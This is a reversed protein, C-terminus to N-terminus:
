EDALVDQRQLRTRLALGARLHAAEVDSFRSETFDGARLEAASWGAQMLGTPEHTVTGLLLHGLEHSVVLGLLDDFHVKAQRALRAIQGVYVTAMVGTKLVPDVNASGLALPALGVTQPAAGPVIRLWVERPKLPDDCAGEPAECRVWALDIGAAGYVAQTVASATSLDADSVAGLNLVRVSLPTGATAATSGGTVIAVVVVASVVLRVM